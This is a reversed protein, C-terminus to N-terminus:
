VEWVAVNRPDIMENKVEILLVEMELPGLKLVDRLLVASLGKIAYYGCMHAQSARALVSDANGLLSTTTSAM